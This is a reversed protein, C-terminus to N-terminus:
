LGLVDAMTYKGAPRNALFKAASLAGRAYSDRSYGKHVLEMTEGLASFIITHEGVNDGARIAHMGIETAPREGLLGERGHQLDPIAMAQQVIKAFHMATGSPSDKKFRHHREVIEVDFGKGKLATGADAVMKFLLNVVLSMSPSFLVATEHAAAEIIAREEHTHGTTAVVIPIKRGECVKLIELSGEPTSFDILVDPTVSLPLEPTVLVGAPGVGALDGADKGINPHKPNDIAAVLVLEPDEKALAVLRQGMRGCAGNIAIKIKMASM